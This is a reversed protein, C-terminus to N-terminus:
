RRRGHAVPDVARAVSRRGAFRWLAAEIRLQHDTKPATLGRHILRLVPGVVLRERWNLREDM